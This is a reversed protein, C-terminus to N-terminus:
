KKNNDIDLKAIKKCIDASLESATEMDTAECLIRIRDSNGLQRLKVTGKKTNLRYYVEDTSGKEAGASEIRSRLESAPVDMEIIKKRVAFDARGIMLEALTTNASFLVNLLKVCLFVADFNWLNEMLQMASVDGIFANEYVTLLRRGYRKAAGVVEEPVDEGILVDRGEAFELECLLSKIRDSSYFKENEICYLETGSENFLFQLGGPEDIAGSKKFFDSINSKLTKNDSEVSIKKGNINCSLLRQLAATYATSLLNMRFVEKAQDVSANQFSSFRFNNNIRRATKATVPFGTRGFFSFNITDGVTSVFIFADLSCYASYFYTQAKYMEEFDYCIVGCSRIGSCCLNKYIESCSKHDSGVGIRVMNPVSAVAQGIRVADSATIQSFVTGSVGFADAEIKEPSEYLMDNGIVSEPDIKRGPWIKVDSLLRSFKGIQAGFGIVTGKELVCNSRVTVCDDTLVGLLDSGDEVHLGDGTISEKITCGSGITTEEGLVTNPGIRNNKGIQLKDGILCPAFFTNGNNDTQEDTILKGRFPFVDTYHHLLDETMNHFAEFEGMDGWYCDTKYCLFRRKEKLLIPFLDESFDYKIQEPILELLAGRMIYIGTNITFSFAQEWTPKESFSRINNKEDKIIVGYERPDSVDKGVVTFDAGSANHFTEVKCFDLDTLNDGSLILINEESQKICNKVGGATGLPKEEECYHLKVPFLKQECFDIIDQAKCGLSLYIDTIEQRILSQIITELVPVNMIKCLPKPKSETLPRLRSGAGGCMIVAKMIIVSGKM